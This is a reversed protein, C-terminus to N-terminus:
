APRMSSPGNPTPPRRTNSAGNAAVPKLLYDVAGYQLAAQAYSFEQFGSIFIFRTELGDERCQKVVDLGTMGPMKIDSVVIQPNNERVLAYLEKGNHAEGIVECDLSDWDVM